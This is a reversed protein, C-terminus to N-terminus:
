IYNHAEIEELLGEPDDTIEDLIEDDSFDCCCEKAVEEITLSDDENIGGDIEDYLVDYLTFDWGGESSEQIHLYNGNVTKYLKM